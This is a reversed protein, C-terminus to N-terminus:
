GRAAGPRSMFAGIRDCAERVRGGIRAIEAGNCVRHLGSLALAFAVKKNADYVPATIFGLEYSKRESLELVPVLPENAPARTEIWKRDEANFASRQICFFFGHERVFEAGKFLAEVQAASPPPDLDDLWAKIEMRPASAFFPGALQALLPLRAGRPTSYGLHSLAAARERVVVEDRERFAAACVADFEDALNRMEPQAVKLPSFHAKAMEGVHLLAAGLVYSKDTARYLYGAEVLGALLGHCTARSLKLTKIVDTLTFAQEPHDAFLNLVAVVRQVSPSLRAM